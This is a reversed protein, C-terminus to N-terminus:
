LCLIKTTGPLDWRLLLASFYSNYLEDLFKIKLPFPCFTSIKPCAENPTNGARRIKPLHSCKRQRLLCTKIASFYSVNISDAFVKQDHDGGVPNRSKINDKGSRDWVFPLDQVLNRGIHQIICFINAGVPQKIGGSGINRDPFFAVRKFNFHHDPSIEGTM